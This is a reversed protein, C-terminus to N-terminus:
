FLILVIAVLALLAATMGMISLYTRLWAPADRNEDNEPKRM